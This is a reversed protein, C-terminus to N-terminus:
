FPGDLVSHTGTAEADLRLNWEDPFFAFSPDGHRRARLARLLDKPDLDPLVDTRGPNLTDGYADAIADFLPTKVPAKVRRHAPVFAKPDTPLNAAALTAAHRRLVARLAPGNWAYVWACDMESFQRRIWRREIGVPAFVLFHTTFPRRALSYGLPRFANMDPIAFGYSGLPKDPGVDLSAPGQRTEIWRIRADVWRAIRSNEDAPTM